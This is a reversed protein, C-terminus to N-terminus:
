TSGKRKSSGKPRASTSPAVDGIPIAGVKVATLGEAPSAGGDDTAATGGSPSGSGCAALTAAVAAACVMTVLRKM